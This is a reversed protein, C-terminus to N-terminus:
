QTIVSKVILQQERLSLSDVVATYIRQLAKPRKFYYDYSQRFVSDSVGAKDFIIPSAAEFIKEASDRRLNLRNIKEESIYIEMMVRAMEEESLVGTPKEEKGCAVALLLILGGILGKCSFIRLLQM